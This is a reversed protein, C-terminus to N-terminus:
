KTAILYTDTANKDADSRRSKIPKLGAWKCLAIMGDPYFRYADIPFRHLGIKAPVIVAMKGGSKMVRAMEKMLEWPFEVHELTQGSIVVDFYEDPFPIKYPEMVVDVNEGETVDVGTYRWKSNTFIQRYSGFKEQGLVVRSGVDLIDLGKDPLERMIARMINLSNLHM